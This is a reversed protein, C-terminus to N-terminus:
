ASRIVFLVQVTGPQQRRRGALFRTIEASNTQGPRSDNALIMAFRELKPDAAPILAKPIKDKPAAIITNDFLSPDVTRKPNELETADVGLLGSLNQRHPATMATLVFSEFPNDIGRQFNAVDALQRLITELEETRVNEAYVMYEINKSATNKLKAEARGDVIVQIGQSILVTQLQTVAVANNHVTIALHVAKEKQIQKALMQQKPKEALEQFRAQFTEGVEIATAANNKAVPEIGPRQNTWLISIGVALVIAAAAAYNAWRPWRRITIKRREQIPQQAQKPLAHLVQEAFDKGLHRAPLEQFRHAAEQFDQLVSRAESSRNLLRLVAKRERRSLEGDVFASLLELDRESLM